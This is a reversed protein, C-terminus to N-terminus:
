SDISQFNKIFSSNPTMNKVLASDKKGHNKMFSSSHTQFSAITRKKVNATDKGESILPQTTNTLRGLTNNLNGFETNRRLKHQSPIQYTKVINPTESKLIGSSNSKVLHSDMMKLLSRDQSNRTKEILFDRMDIKKNEFFSGKEPTNQRSGKRSGFIGSLPEAYERSGGQLQKKNAVEFDYGDKRDASNEVRVFKSVTRNTRVIESTHDSLIGSQSKVLDHGLPISNRKGGTVSGNGTNM